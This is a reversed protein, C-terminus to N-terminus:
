VDGSILFSIDHFDLSRGLARGSVAGGRRTSSSRPFAAGCTPPREEVRQSNPRQESVPEDGEDRGFASRASWGAPPAASLGHTANASFLALGRM